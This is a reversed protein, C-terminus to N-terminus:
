RKERIFENLSTHGERAMIEGLRYEWVAEFTEWPWDNEQGLRM